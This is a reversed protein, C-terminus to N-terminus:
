YKEIYDAIKRLIEPNERAYGLAVNCGGCLWGRLEGTTHNHDLSLVVERGCVECGSTPPTAQETTIRIGLKKFTQVRDSVKQRNLCRFWGNGDKRVEVPGCVSCEGMGRHSTANTIRHKINQSM